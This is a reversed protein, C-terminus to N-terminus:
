PAQTSITGPPLHTQRGAIATRRQWTSVSGAGARWRWELLSRSPATRWFWKTLGEARAKGVHRGRMFVSGRARVAELELPWLPLIQHRWLFPLGAAALDLVANVSARIDGARGQRAERVVM